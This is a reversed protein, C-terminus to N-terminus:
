SWISGAGFGILAAAFIALLNIADNNLWAHGRVLSTPTGCNHVLMETHTHCTPCWYRAQITAGLLSDTISGSFGSVTAILILPAATLGPIEWGITTGVGAVLGILLAGAASGITGTTSIAGSTGPPAPKGTTIVRPQTRSLRGTETGWTDSTAGAIAAVMAVQWPAPNGALASCVALVMPTGGNAFVQVADRRKGRAQESGTSRMSSLISLASASVFFAVLILGPWWGATAVITGGVIAAAAVGSASLAGIRWAVTAVLTSTGFGFAWRTGSDNLLNLLDTM